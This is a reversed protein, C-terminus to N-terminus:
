SHQAKFQLLQILEGLQLWVVVSLTAAFAMLLWGIFSLMLGTDALMLAALGSLAYVMHGINRWVDLHSVAKTTAGFCNCPTSIQRKLVSALAVSFILFLLTALAFGIWLLSEGILMLLAVIIETSLLVIAASGTLQQPVIRFHAITQVFQPFNRGKGVVALAFVLGVTIRCFAVIYPALM